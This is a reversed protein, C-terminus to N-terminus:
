TSDDAGEAVGGSWFGGQLVGSVSPMIVLSRQRKNLSSGSIRVDLQLYGNSEMDDLRLLLTESRALLTLPLLRANYQCQVQLPKVFM